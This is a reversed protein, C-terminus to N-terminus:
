PDVSSREARMGDNYSRLASLAVLAHMHTHTQSHIRLERARSKINNKQKNWEM